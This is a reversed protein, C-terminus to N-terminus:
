LGSSRFEADAFRQWLRATLRHGTSGKPLVVTEVLMSGSEDFMRISARQTRNLNMAVYLIAPFVGLIAFFIVTGVNIPLRREYSIITSENRKMWWGPADFTDRVISRIEAPRLASHDRRILPRADTFALWALMGVFALVLPLVILALPSAALLAGLMSGILAGSVVWVLVNDYTLRM